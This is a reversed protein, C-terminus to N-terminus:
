QQGATVNNNTLSQASSLQQASITNGSNINNGSEMIIKSLASMSGGKGEM